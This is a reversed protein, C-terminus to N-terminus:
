LMTKLIQVVGAEENSPAIFNAAQKVDPHANEMAYSHTCSKLLEIDNLYDGFAMCQDSSYCFQEMLRTYAEGKNVGINMVDVWEYGSLLIQFNDAYKQMYPYVHHEADQLDLISMKCIPEEDIIDILNEVIQYSKYYQEVHDIVDASGQEIYAGHAGCIVPSVQGFVRLDRVIEKMVAPDAQDLFLPKADQFVAAGNECIYIIHEDHGEFLNALTAYQRGSAIVFQTGRKQLEHMVPFFSAPIEKRDNLLTGDMDIAILKMTSM